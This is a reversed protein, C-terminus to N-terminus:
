GKPRFRISEVGEFDRDQTWLVAARSRATALIVGDALALGEGVSLEAAELALSSDLDILTGRRMAAAVRLAEERGAHRLVHRFVEFLSLTPVLLTDSEQIADAFFDANPGGSLYEIWGSPDVVNM